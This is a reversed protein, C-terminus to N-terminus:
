RGRKRRQEQSLAEISDILLAVASETVRVPHQGLDRRSFHVKGENLDLLQRFAFRGWDSGHHADIARGGSLFITGLNSGNGSEVSLEGTEGAAALGAIEATLKGALPGASDSAANGNGSKAVKDLQALVARTAAARKSLGNRSCLRAYTRLQDPVPSACIDTWLQKIQEHREGYGRAKAWVPDMADRAKPSLLRHPDLVALMRGDLGVIHAVSIGGDRQLSSPLPAQVDLDLDEVGVCTDIAVALLRGGSRVIVYGDRQTSGLYETMDFADRLDIVPAPEGRYLLFQRWPGREVRVRHQEVARQLVTEVWDLHFGFLGDDVSFVLVRQPQVQSVRGGAESMAEMSM